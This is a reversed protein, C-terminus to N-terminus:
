EAASATAPRRQRAMAQRAADTAAERRDKPLRAYAAEVLRNVLATRGLPKGEEGLAICLADLRLAEDQYMRCLVQKRLEHAPM